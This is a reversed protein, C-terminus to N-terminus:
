HESSRKDIALGVMSINDLVYVGMEQGNRTRLVSQKGSERAKLLMDELLEAKTVKAARKFETKVDAKGARKEKRSM